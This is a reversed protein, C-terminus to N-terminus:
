SYRFLLGETAAVARSWDAKDVFLPQGSCEKTYKAAREYTLGSQVLRWAGLSKLEKRLRETVSNPGRNPKEKWQNVVQQQRCWNEFLKALVTASLSFDVAFAAIVQAYPKGDEFHNKRVTIAKGDYTPEEGRHHHLLHRISESWKSADTNIANAVESLPLMRLTRPKCIEKPWSAEFRRRRETVPISLYPYEPWDPWIKYFWNGIIPRGERGNGDTLWYHKLLADFTPSRCTKRWELVGEVDRPLM